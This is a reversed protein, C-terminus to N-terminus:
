ILSVMQGPLRQLRGALDLELLTMALLPAPLGTARLLEDIPTPTPSLAQLVIPRAQDIM